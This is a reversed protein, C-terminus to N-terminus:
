LVYKNFEIVLYLYKLFNYLILFKLINKIYMVNNEIIINEM